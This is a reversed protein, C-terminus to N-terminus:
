TPRGPFGGFASVVGLEDGGAPVRSGQQVAGSTSAPERQANSLTTIQNIQRDHYAAGVASQYGRVFKAAENLAAEGAQRTWGFKQVADDLFVKDALARIVDVTQDPELFEGERSVIDDIIDLALEDAESMQQGHQFEMLPALRQELRQDFLRLMQATADEGFFDVEPYAEQQQGSAAQQYALERAQQEQIWGVVSGWEDPSPAWAPEAPEAAAAAEAAAIPASVDLESM